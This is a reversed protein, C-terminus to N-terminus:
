LERTKPRTPKFLLNSAPQQKPAKTPVSLPASFTVPVQIRGDTMRGVALNIEAVPQDAQARVSDILIDLQAIQRLFDASNKALFIIREINTARVEIVRDADFRALSVVKWTEYLHPAENRATALLDAVVGMDAIPQMKDGVKALRIGDLYPLATLLSRDYGRGDYVVGDRAVLLPRPAGGGIQANVLAVPSREALTVELTSPFKRAVTASLVQDDALLRARLDELNLEMLTAKPPLALTRSIWAQDLVGDTRLIIEKVPVADVVKSIKRPDENFFETFVIIGGGVLAITVVLGTIRCFTMFMRKRGSSSMARPKVQQPIDRWSRTTPQKPNSKSV